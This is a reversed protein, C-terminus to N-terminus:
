ESCTDCVDCLGVGTSAGNGDLLELVCAQGSPCGSRHGLKCCYNRCTGASGDSTCDLGPACDYSSTCAEGELVDGVPQCQAFPLPDPDSILFLCGEDAHECSTSSLLDCLEGGCTARVTVGADDVGASGDDGADSGAGGLRVEDRPPSSQESCGISLVFLAGLGRAWPAHITLEM